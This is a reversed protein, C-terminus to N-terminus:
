HGSSKTLGIMTVFPRWAWLAYHSLEPLYMQAIQGDLYLANPCDLRDRFLTAFDHFNVPEESIAFVVQGQRDVGVGARVYRSDYAAIFRPHLEGGIVLMPGSQVAQTIQALPPLDDTEVVGAGKRTLYFVGNPKMFFNGGGRGRNLPSLVQGNEIYLGLPAFERSYIGGNVAFALEEGREALDQRLTAISAYASGDQRKWFFRLRQEEGKALRYVAFEAGQHELSFATAAQASISGLALTWGLILRLWHRPSPTPTVLPDKMMLTAALRRMFTLSTKGSSNQTLFRITM